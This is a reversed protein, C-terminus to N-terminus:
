SYVNLVWPECSRGSVYRVEIDVFFSSDAGNCADACGVAYTQNGGPMSFFEDCYNGDIILDYQAGPPEILEIRAAVFGCCEFGALISEEIGNFTL